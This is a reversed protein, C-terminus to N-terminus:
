QSWMEKASDCAHDKAMKEKRASFCLLDISASVGWPPHKRSTSEQAPRRLSWASLACLLMQWNFTAGSGQCFIFNNDQTRAHGDYNTRFWLQRAGMAWVCLGANSRRTMALNSTQLVGGPNLLYLDLRLFKPIYQSATASALFIFVLRARSINEFTVTTFRAPADDDDPLCDTLRVHNREVWAQFKEVIKKQLGAQDLSSHFSSLLSPLRVLYM